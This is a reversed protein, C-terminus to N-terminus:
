KVRRLGTRPTPPTVNQLEISVCGGGPSVSQSAPQGSPHWFGPLPPGESLGLNRASALLVHCGTEVRCVQDARRMQATQNVDDGYSPVLVWDAGLEQLLGRVAPHADVFDKCILVTFIGLPTVLLNVENGPVIDEVLDLEGPEGYSGFLRLKRHRFLCDGTHGDTLEACNFTEGGLDQHFSGLLLLSPQVPRHQRTWLEVLHDRQAPTLSLEPALVVHAAADAAQALTTIASGLRKAEDKLGTALWRGSVPSSQWQVHCDDDFHAIWARLTDASQAMVRMGYALNGTPVTVRVQLLHSILGLEAPVVVHKTIYHDLRPVQRRMKAASRIPTEVPLLWWSNEDVKYAVGSFRLRSTTAVLDDLAALLALPQACIEITTIAPGLQLRKLYARTDQAHDSPHRQTEWRALTKADGKAALCVLASAWDDQDIFRKVDEM